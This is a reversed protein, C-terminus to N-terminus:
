RNAYETDYKNNVKTLKEAKSYRNNQTKYDNNSLLIKKKLGM